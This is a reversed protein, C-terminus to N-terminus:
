LSLGGAGCRTNRLSTSALSTQSRSENASRLVEGGRRWRQM